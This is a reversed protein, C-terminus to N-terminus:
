FVSKKKKGKVTCPTSGLAVCMSPVRASRQEGAGLNSNEISRDKNCLSDRDQKPNQKPPVVIFPTKTGTKRNIYNETLM